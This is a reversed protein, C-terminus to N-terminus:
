NDATPDRVNIFLLVIEFLLKQIQYQLVYQKDLDITPDNNLPQYHVDIFKKYIFM